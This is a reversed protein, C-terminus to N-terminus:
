VVIKQQRLYDLEDYDSMELGCFPCVLETPYVGSIYSQGDAWDVDPEYEVRAPNGCSPCVADYGCDESVNKELLAIEKIGEPTVKKRNWISNHHQIKQRIKETLGALSRKSAADFALMADGVLESVPIKFEKAYASTVLSYTELLFATAKNADVESVLRHLITDRYNSLRFLAGSHQNTTESFASARLISKRFTLVNQEPTKSIEGRSDCGKLLKDPYLIPATNKFSQDELIYIPNIQWLIGKLLKETAVAYFLVADIVDTEGMKESILPTCRHFYKKADSIYQNEMDHSERKNKGM